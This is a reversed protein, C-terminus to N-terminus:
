KAAAKASLYQQYAQRQTDWNESSALQDIESETVPRTVSRAALQSATSPQPSTVYLAKLTDVDPTTAQIYKFGFVACDACNYYVSNGSIHISSLIENAYAFTAPTGGPYGGGLMNSSTGNAFTLVISNVISGSSCEVSVVPNNAVNFVGGRPPQNSGSGSYGMRPTTTAGGPGGGAPYTVQVSEVRDAGWVSIQSIPQAPAPPTTVPGSDDATGCPDSYIERDLYVTVANPYVSADFYKWLNAYDLVALTMQRIYSNTAAFPETKHQRGASDQAMKPPPFVASGIQYHSNAYQTYSAVASTLNQAHDQLTAAPWGWNAGFLVGDRLLALHLNVFQAFLPMLPFVYPEAQFHPLAQVFADDLIDWQTMIDNNDQAQVAQHYRALLGSLGELDQQVQQYVADSIQQAVLQEVEGKIESWVDEGSQPWFVAVLASLLSGVEPVTGLIGAVVSEFTKNLNLSM